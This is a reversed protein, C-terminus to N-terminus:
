FFKKHGMLSGFGGGLAGGATAGAGLAALSAGGTPAALLVAGVGVVVGGITSVAQNKALNGAAKAQNSGISKQLDVKAQNLKQTEELKDKYAALLQNKQAQGIGEANAQQRIQIAQQGQFQLQEATKNYAAQLLDTKRQELQATSQVYNQFQEDTGARLKAYDALQRENSFTRGQENQQFQRRSDYMEQKAQESIQALQQAGEFQQQGLGLRQDNLAKTDNLQQVQQALGSIQQQAQAQQGVQAVQATGAQQAMATGMQQATQATAQAPKAAGVAAQLQMDRAAKQQAALRQNAVPVQSSMQGLTSTSTQPLDAM